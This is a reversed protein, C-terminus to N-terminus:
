QGHSLDIALRLPSSTPPNAWRPRHAPHPAALPSHQLEVGGLSVLRDHFPRTWAGYDAVRDVRIGASRVWDVVAHLSRGAAHEADLVHFM